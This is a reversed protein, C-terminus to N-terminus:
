DIETGPVFTTRHVLEFENFETVPNISFSPPLPPTAIPLQSIVLWIDLKVKIVRDAINQASVQFNFTENFVPNLDSFLYIFLYM